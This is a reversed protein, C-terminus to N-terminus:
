RSVFNGLAHFIEHMIVGKYACTDAEIGIPQRGGQRGIFSTCGHQSSNFVIHDVPWNDIDIIELERFKLCTASEFEKVAEEIVSSYVDLPFLPYYHIQHFPCYTDILHM